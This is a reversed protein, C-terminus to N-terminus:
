KGLFQPIETIQIGSVTMSHRWLFKPADRNMTPAGVGVPFPFLEASRLMDAQKKPLLWNTDKRLDDRNLLNKQNQM